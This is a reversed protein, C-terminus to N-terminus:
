RDATHSERGGELSQVHSSKLAGSGKCVTCRVDGGSTEAKEEQANLNSSINRIESYNDKKILNRLTELNISNDGGPGVYKLSSSERCATPATKFREMHQM